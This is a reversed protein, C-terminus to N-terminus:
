KNIILLDNLAGSLEPYLFSYSDDLMKQPLVRQGGTLLEAREGLLIKLLLSPVALTLLGKQVNVLTQTFVRNTVPYPATMNVAGSKSNDLILRAVLQIYDTIHIWSMWQAGDGVRTGIGLPLRMKSLIGGRNSLVLGTRLLCVRVGDQQAALAAQEWAACLKAAFDHGASSNEILKEDARNGYYGIASGSLMVLPKVRAGRIKKVLKETLTVRSDWLRQKQKTTWFKDAIPEGALNIVVEFIRDPLWEDLSAMSKVFSGCKTQASVPFRTLVTIQHGQQHLVKCLEQGILGTGGTILIHM